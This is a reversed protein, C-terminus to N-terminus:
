SNVEKIDSWLLGLKWKRWVSFVLFRKRHIIYQLIQKILGWLRQMKFKRILYKSHRPSVFKRGYGVTEMLDKCLYEVLEVEERSLNKKWATIRKKDPSESLKHHINKHTSRYEKTGMKHYALLTPQYPIQLFACVHKLTTEPRAVLDEYRIELVDNPYQQKLQLGAHTDRLWRKAGFYPNSCHIRSKALSSATARPDRIVHIFQADPWIQKILHGYRIFRPTKNGWINKKHKKAYLLHVRNVMEKINKCNDFEKVSLDLGWGRFEPERAFLLKLTRQNATQAARLYDLICISELPVAISSHHNLMTRLLTTGSRGCGVIFFPPTKKDPSNM